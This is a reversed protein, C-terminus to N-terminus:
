ITRRYMAFVEDRCYGAGEYFGVLHPEAHPIEVMLGRAGTDRAHQEVRAVLARALGRGRFAPDVYLDSLFWLRRAYWSSFLPYLQIFGRLSGREDAVYLVSDARQLREALFARGSEADDAGTFHRRYGEFLPALADLDGAHAARIVLPAEWREM